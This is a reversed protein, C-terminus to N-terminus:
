GHRLRVAWGRARAANLRDYPAVPKGQASLTGELEAKDAFYDYRKALLDLYDPPCASLSKGVQSDGTWERPDKARIIPNGSLSDLDANSAILKPANARQLAVLAKLSADISRLVDLVDTPIM